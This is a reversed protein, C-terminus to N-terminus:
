SALVASGQGPLAFSAARERMRKKFSAQGKERPLRAKETGRPEQINDHGSWGSKLPGGEM